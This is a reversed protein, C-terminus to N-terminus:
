APTRPTCSPVSPLEGHRRAQPEHRVVILGWVRGPATTTSVRFLESEFVGLAAYEGADNQITTMYKDEVQSLIKVSAARARTLAQTEREMERQDFEFSATCVAREYFHCCTVTVSAGDGAVHLWAGIGRRM